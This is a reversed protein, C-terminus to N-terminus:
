STDQQSGVVRMLHMRSNVGLKEFVHRLHTNVTHPSIFLKEAIGRNTSGQAALKAVAAEAETLSAWGSKPRERATPRHRVGLRRLRGRVRAADWTAGVRTTLSLAEDLM